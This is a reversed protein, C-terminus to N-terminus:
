KTLYDNWDYGEIPPAYYQDAYGAEITQQAGKIGPEDNDAAIIIPLSTRKRWFRAVNIINSWCTACLVISRSKMRSYITSGTAFGECIIVKEPPQPIPFEFCAGARHTGAYLGKMHRGDRMTGRSIRELTQFKRTLANVLPILLDGERCFDGQRTQEVVRIKRSFIRIHKFMCYPHIQAREPRARQYEDFARARAREEAQADTDQKPKPSDQQRLEQRQAWTLSDPNLKGKIMTDHKHYDMFGWNPFGDAHAFYAGSKKGYRDETTSFRHIKGDFIFDIEEKPTIGEEYMHQLIQRAIETHM